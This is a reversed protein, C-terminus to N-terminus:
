PRYQAQSAAIVRHVVPQDLAPPVPADGVLIGYLDQDPVELLREFVDMEAPSLGALQTDVFRGLLIDMEKTGRHSARYRLRKRRIDLADENAAQNM